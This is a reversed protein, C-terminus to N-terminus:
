RIYLIYGSPPHRKIDAEAEGFDWSRFVFDDEGASVAEGSSFGGLEMTVVAASAKGDAAGPEVYGDFKWDLDVPTFAFLASAGAVCALATLPGGVSHQKGAM